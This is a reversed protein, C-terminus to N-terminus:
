PAADEEAPPLTPEAPQLDRFFRGSKWLLVLQAIGCGALVLAAILLLVLLLLLAGASGQLVLVLVFIALMAGLSWFTCKRLLRWNDALQCALPRFEGQFSGGPPVPFASAELEEAMAECFQYLAVLSMVGAALTGVLGIGGALGLAGMGSSPRFLAPLMLVIAAAAVIQAALQLHWVLRLRGSLPSLKWYAALAGIGLCLSVVSVALSLGQSLPLQDLLNLAMSILGLWFLVPLWKEMVPTRRALGARWDAQRTQEEQKWQQRLREMDEPKSCTERAGCEGCNQMGQSHCCAAARCSGWVPNGGTELCGRCRYRQRDECGKCDKGCVGAM